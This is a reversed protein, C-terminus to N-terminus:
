TGFNKALIIWTVFLKLFAPEGAYSSRHLSSFLSQSSQSVYLQVKLYLFEIYKVFKNKDTTLTKDYLLQTKEM